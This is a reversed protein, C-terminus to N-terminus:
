ISNNMTGDEEFTYENAEFTEIIAEKSMLYESEHQLIISYDELLSKLFEEELEMLEDEAERTEFKINSEDMYAGFVPNFEELFAEATKYTECDPGHDRMINAAVEAASLTFQGTAHRNRDLDFHELKLGINEADMYTGDWWEGHEVNISYNKEIAKQKAEESLEAFLYLNIKITKM